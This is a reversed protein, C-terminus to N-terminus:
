PTPSARRRRSQTGVPRGDVLLRLSSGDFVGAVHHWAGNWIEAPGIAATVYFNRGDFVYFAM